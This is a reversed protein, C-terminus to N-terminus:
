VFLGKLQTNPVIFRATLCSNSFNVLFFIYHSIFSFWLLDSISSFPYLSWYIIRIINFHWLFFKMLTLIITFFTEYKWDETILHEKKIQWDLVFTDIFDCVIISHMWINELWHPCNYNKSNFINWSSFSFSNFINFGCTGENMWVCMCVCIGM